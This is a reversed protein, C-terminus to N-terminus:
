SLADWAQLLQGGPDGDAGARIQLEELMAARLPGPGLFAIHEEVVFAPLKALPWGRWRGFPMRRTRRDPISRQIRRDNGGARTVVRSPGPREGTPPSM